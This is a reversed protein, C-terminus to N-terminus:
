VENQLELIGSEIKGCLDNWDDIQRLYREEHDKDNFHPQPNEAKRKLFFYTDRKMDGLFMKSFVEFRIGKSIMVSALREHISLDRNGSIFVEPDVLDAWILFMRTESYTMFYKSFTPTPRDPDLKIKPNTLNRARDYDTGIIMAFDSRSIFYKDLWGKITEADPPCWQGSRFTQKYREM